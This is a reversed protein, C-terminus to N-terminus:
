SLKIISYIFRENFFSVQSNTLTFDTCSPSHANKVINPEKNISRMEHQFLFNGLRMEGIKANFDKILVVKQYKCYVDLTKDLTDFIIPWITITLSLDWRFAM